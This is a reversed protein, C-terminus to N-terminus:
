TTVYNITVGAEWFARNPLTHSAAKLVFRAEPVAFGRRISPPEEVWHFVGIPCKGMPRPQPRAGGM